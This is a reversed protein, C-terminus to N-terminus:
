KRLYSSHIFGAKNGYTVYYWKAGAYTTYYGYCQVKVGKPVVCIITKHIGAGARMNVVGSTTYTGSLKNDFSKAPDVKVTTSPPTTPNQPPPTPKNSTEVKSLTSEDVWGYVGSIYEGKDNVARVHYPHKGHESTATIKAKSGKVSSGNTANTSAYHKGGAFKVIEGNEFKLASTSPPSVPKDVPPTIPKDAPAGSNVGVIECLVKALADALKDMNNDFLANDTANTVFGVEILSSPMKTMRNVGFDKYDKAAPTGMKVGRNLMGTSKVVADNLMKGYNKVNNTAQSHVWIETGHASPSGSNRHLSLYYDCNTDNAEKCRANLDVYVNGERAMVVSVGYAMLKNKVALALRLNDDAEHRKGNVAGSDKGGHGADIYIKKM